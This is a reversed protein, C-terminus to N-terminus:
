PFSRSDTKAPSGEARDLFRRSEIHHLTLLGPPDLLVDRIRLALSLALCVDPPLGILTGILIFAGEQVGYANPIIFAFDGMTSTLSRLM